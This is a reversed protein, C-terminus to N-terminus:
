SRDIFQERSSLEVKPLKDVLQGWFANEKKLAKAWEYTLVRYAIHGGNRSRLNITYQLDDISGYFRYATAHGTPLLYKVYETRLAAPLIGTTNKLWDKILEYTANMRSEYEKRIEQMEPLDLYDCLFYMKSNPREFERDINVSENWLPIFREMSRHRNLDKLIGHDAMGEISIAGQQGLNRLQNHHNHGSLLAEGLQSKQINSLEIKTSKSIPDQILIYNRILSALANNDENIELTKAPSSSFKRKSTKLKWKEFLEVVKDTSEYTTFNAETHRILGDAEPVYGKAVLKEPGKLLEYLLAALERDMLAPSAAFYAITDSWVRASTLIGLSTCAGLPIFYRVTDFTRAELVKALSKDNMDINFAKALAKKTPELLESYDSYSKRIIQEYKLKIEDPISKDEPFNIFDPNSFDQYRTSREQGALVPIQNFLKMALIMPINEICIFLDSMDGVSKHGYNTFIKELRDAANISGDYAEATIDTISDASRSYRAGLYATIAPQKQGPNQQLTHVAIHHAASKTKISAIHLNPKYSYTKTM